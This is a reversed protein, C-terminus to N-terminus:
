SLWCIYVDRIVCSDNGVTLEANDM